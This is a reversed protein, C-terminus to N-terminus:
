IGMATNMLHAAGGVIVNKLTNGAWTWGDQHDSVYNQMTTDLWSLASSEGYKDAIASFKSIYKMKESTTLSDFM